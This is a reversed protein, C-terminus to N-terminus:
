SRPSGAVAAPTKRRAWRRFALFVGVMLCTGPFLFGWEAYFSRFRAPRLSFTREEKKFKNTAEAMRGAPDIVGSPGVNTARAISIRSEVARMKLVSVHQGVHSTDGYWIDETINVLFSAGKANKRVYGDLIAEYCILIRFNNSSPGGSRDPLNFLPGDTGAAITGVFGLKKRFGDPLRDLLPVYEGFLLRINKHYFGGPPWKGPLIYAASNYRADASPVETWTGAVLPTELDEFGTPKVRDIEGRIVKGREDFLYGVSDAGEPWLVLDLRGKAELARTLTVMKKLLPTNVRNDGRKEDPHTVPQIVGIKLESAAAMARDIQDLRLSGYVNAGLLACAAAALSWRPFRVLGQKWFLVLALATNVLFVLATLGSAGLLDASQVLWIRDHVAGGVHWPFIRPYYHEIGVWLPLVLLIRCPEPRGRLRQCSLLLGLLMWPITEYLVWPLFLALAEFAGFGTFERMSHHVWSFGWGELIAGSVLGGLLGRRWGAGTVAWFLPALTVWILFDFDYRPFSLVMLVGTVACALLFVWRRSRVDNGAAVPASATTLPEKEM